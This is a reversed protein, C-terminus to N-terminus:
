RWVMSLAAFLVREMEKPIVGSDLWEQQLGKLEDKRAANIPCIVKRVKINDGMISPKNCDDNLTLDFLPMYGLSLLKEWYDPKQKPYNLDRFGHLFMSSYDQNLVQLTLTIMKMGSIEINYFFAFRMPYTEPHQQFEYRKAMDNYIDPYIIGQEDMNTCEIPEVGEPFPQAALREAEALRGSAIDEYAIQPLENLKTGDTQFPFDIFTERWQGDRFVLGLQYGSESQQALDLVYTEGQLKGTIKDTPINVVRGEATTIHLGNADYSYTEEPFQALFEPPPLPVETPTATTTPTPTETPKPTNTPGEAESLAPTPSSSPSVRLSPSGGEPVQRCAALSASLATSTLLALIYIMFRRM